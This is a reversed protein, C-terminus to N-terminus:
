LRALSVSILKVSMSPLCLKGTKRIYKSMENRLYPLSQKGQTLAASIAGVYNAALM